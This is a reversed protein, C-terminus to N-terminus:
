KGGRDRAACEGRLAAYAALDQYSDASYAGQQSRVQKLVEMLLWGQEETLTHGTIANFATVTAGMSREGAPKDYTAARDKMHGAAADLISTATVVQSSRPPYPRRDLIKCKNIRTRCRDDDWVYGNNDEFAMTEFTTADIGVLEIRVNYQKVVLKWDVKSM